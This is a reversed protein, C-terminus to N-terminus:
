SKQSTRFINRLQQFRIQLKQKKRSEANLSHELVQRTRELQQAYMTARKLIMVKPAKSNDKLEPINERLTQFAFRLDDRRKREMSNHEKRVRKPDDSDSSSRSSRYGRRQSKINKTRELAKNNTRRIEPQGISVRVSNVSESSFRLKASKRVVLQENKLSYSFMKPAFCTDEDHDKLVNEEVSCHTSLKDVTVVDVEEDSDSPTDSNLHELSPKHTAFNSKMDNCRHLGTPNANKNNQPQYYSHDIRFSVSECLSATSTDICKVSSNKELPEYDLPNISSTSHLRPATTKDNEKQKCNETCRGSWMCDHILEVNHWDRAKTELLGRWSSFDDFYSEFGPCKQYPLFDSDLLDSVLQLRECPSFPHLSDEHSVHAPSRPPTPLEFKKWINESPVPTNYFENDSSLCDLGEDALYPTSCSDSCGKYFVDKTGM